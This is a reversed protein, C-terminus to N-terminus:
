LPCGDPGASLAALRPWRRLCYRLRGPMRLAPEAAPPSASLVEPLAALKAAPLEMVLGVPLAASRAAPLAALPSVEPLVPRVM